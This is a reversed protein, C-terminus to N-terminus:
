KTCNIQFKKKQMCIPQCFSFPLVHLHSFCFSLDTCILDGSHFQWGSFIYHQKIWEMGTISMWFTFLSLHNFATIANLILNKQPLCFDLLRYNKTIEFNWYECYTILSCEAFVYCYMLDFHGQVKSTLPWSIVALQWYSDDSNKQMWLHPGCSAVTVKVKPRQDGFDSCVNTCLNSFVGWLRKSISCWLFPRRM